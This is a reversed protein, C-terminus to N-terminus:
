FSSCTWRLFNPHGSATCTVYQGNVFDSSTCTVYYESGYCQSTGANAPKVAVGAVVCTFALAGLTTLTSKVTNFM